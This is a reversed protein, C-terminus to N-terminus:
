MRTECPSLLKVPRNRKLVITQHGASSCALGHSFGSTRAEVNASAANATAPTSFARNSKKVRFNELM